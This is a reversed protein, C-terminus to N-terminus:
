KNGKRASIDKKNKNKNNNKKPASEDHGGYRAGGIQRSWGFAGSPQCIDVRFEDRVHTSNKDEEM